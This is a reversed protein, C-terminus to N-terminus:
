GALIDSHIIQGHSYIVESNKENQVAFMNALDGDFLTYKGLAIVAQCADAAEQWQHTNLYFRGLLALASGKDAKGWLTQDRPLDNAAAQLEGALFTNFEEESPRAPELNLEEATTILPVPGYFDWLYYYDAARIFTAEAKLQRVKEASLATAKDINDLLSNANRISIYWNSWGGRIAGVSPDWNFGIFINALSAFGGGWEWMIDGTFESLTYLRERQNSIAHMRDYSAVLISNIGEETQLYIAPDYQNFVEEELFDSCGGTILLFIIFATTKFYINKM